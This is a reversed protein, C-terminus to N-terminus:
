KVVELAIKSFGSECHHKRDPTFYNESTEINVPMMSSTPLTVLM